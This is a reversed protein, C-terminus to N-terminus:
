ESKNVLKELAREADKKLASKIKNEEKLMFGFLKAIIDLDELDLGGGAQSWWEPAKVIRVQLHGLMHAELQLDAPVIAGEPSPGIIERRLADIKFLERRTLVTKVTFDGVYSKGTTEGIESISFTATTEM